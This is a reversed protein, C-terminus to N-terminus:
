SETWFRCVFDHVGGSGRTTGLSSYHWNGTQSWILVPSIQMVLFIQKTQVLAAWYKQKYYHFSNKM